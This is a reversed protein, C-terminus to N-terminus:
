SPPPPPETVKFSDRESIRAFYDKLATSSELQAQGEPFMSVYALIPAIFCDAVTFADSGLYGPAVAKNLAAFQAPMKEVSDDIRNRVVNGDEDKNFLYELVYHRIMTLDIATTIISIWQDVKAAALPDAPMLAPGDFTDDIYRSIVESEALEVHDHRMVPVKGLPHIANVEDSHPMAPMLEYDVGKEHAVMRVVRVFSSQPIGIIQLSM